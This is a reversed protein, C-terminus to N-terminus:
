LGTRPATGRTIHKRPGVARQLRFQRAGGPIPCGGALLSRTSASVARIATGSSCIAFYCAPDSSLPLFRRPPGTRPAPVSGSRFPAGRAQSPSRRPNCAVFHGCGFGLSPPSARALPPPRGAVVRDGAVVRQKRSRLCCPRPGCYNKIIGLFARFRPRTCPGSWWAHALSPPTRVRPHGPSLLRGGAGARGGPPCAPRRGRGKTAATRNQQHVVRALCDRLLRRASGEWAPRARAPRGGGCGGAGCVPIRRASEPGQLQMQDSCPRPLGQGRRPRARPLRRPPTGGAPQPARAAGSGGVARPVRWGGLAPAGALAQPAAATPEGGSPLRYLYMAGALNATQPPLGALVRQGSNVLWGVARPMGGPQAATLGRRRALGLTGRQLPPTLAPTGPVRPRAQARRRPSRERRGGTPAPRATRRGSTPIPSNFDLRPSQADGWRRSSATRSFEEGLGAVAGAPRRAEWVATIAHRGGRM